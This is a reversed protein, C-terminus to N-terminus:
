QMSHLKVRVWTEGNPGIFYIVGPLTEDLMLDLVDTDLLDAIVSGFLEPKMNMQRYNMLIQIAM